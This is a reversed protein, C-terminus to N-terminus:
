KLSLVMKIDSNLGTLEEDFAAERFGFTKFLELSIKLRSSTLLTMQRANFNKVRQIADALLQKGIGKGRHTPAVALDAIEYIKNSEKMVACAGVITDNQRAFLIFGGNKLVNDVLHNLYSELDGGFNQHMWDTNLRKFEDGYAPTFDLIDVSSSTNLEM